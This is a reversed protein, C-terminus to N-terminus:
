QDLIPLALVSAMYWALHFFEFAHLGCDTAAVAYAANATGAALAVAGQNHGGCRQGLRGNSRVGSCRHRCTYPRGAGPTASSKSAALPAVTSLKVWAYSRARRGVGCACVAAGMNTAWAM